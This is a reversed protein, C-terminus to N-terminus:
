RISYRLEAIVTRGSADPNFGSEAAAIRDGTVSTLEVGARLHQTLDYFYAVTWAHGHETNTEASHERQTTSFTDYRTSYRSRGRKSSALVYWTKFDAQVWAHPPAGMGTSGNAWEAAIIGADTSGLEGSVLNFKTRWAYEGRYLERDGRNDIRAFQIMGKGAVGYRARGAFGTRGDLDRGFPKTGDRQDGFLKANKFSFLPPLPLVEDYVTLRNGLTWGRWGLLTGMTDNGRFATAALTFTEGHRWQLEAGLPRFEQGIWNNLASFTITYPSTWLEGKNERSTPLFFLGGRVQLQENGFSTRAEAFAEVIGARRGGYGSPERRAVGSAHVDFYTSPEWDFGLQANGFARTRHEHPATGGAELRGFGGELWSPQGTAYIDRATLFGSLRFTQGRASVALLLLLLTTTPRRMM